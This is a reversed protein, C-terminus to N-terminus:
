KFRMIWVVDYYPPLNTDPSTTYYESWAKTATGPNDGEGASSVIHTHTSSGGTGGSTTNGRLFRNTSNLNPINKNFLPSNPDTIKQGNCECFNEPLMVDFVKIWGIISGIPIQYSFIQKSATRLWSDKDIM